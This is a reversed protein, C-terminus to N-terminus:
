TSIEDFSRVENRRFQNPQTFINHSELLNEIERAIKRSVNAQIFIQGNKADKIDISIEPKQM